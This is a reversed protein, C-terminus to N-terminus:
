FANSHTCIGYYYLSPCLGARLPTTSTGLSIPAWAFCVTKPPPFHVLSFSAPCPHSQCPTSFSYAHGVFGCMQLFHRRPISSGLDLVQPLFFAIALYLLHGRSCFPAPSSHLALGLPLDHPPKCAVPFAKYKMRFM